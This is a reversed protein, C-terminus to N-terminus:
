WGRSRRPIKRLLERHAYEALEMENTILGTFVYHVTDSLMEGTYGKFERIKVRDMGLQRYNYFFTVWVLHGRWTFTTQM